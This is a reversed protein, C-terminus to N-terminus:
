HQSCVSNVSFYYLGDRVQGRMLIEHTQIDKIVCYSHHFEFFVNNDTAFKSVFLLNKQISLVCLVNPLHLLKRQIPLITNEISLIKTSVGNGILLSSDGTYPSSAHIDSANQCM